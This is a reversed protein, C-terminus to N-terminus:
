RRRALARVIAYAAVPLAWAAYRPTEAPLALTREGSSDRVIIAAPRHWGIRVNAGDGFAFERVEVIGDVQRSPATVLPYSRRECRMM